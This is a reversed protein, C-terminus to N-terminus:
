PRHPTHNENNSAEAAQEQGAALGPRFRFRFCLLGVGLLLVAALAMWGGIPYAVGGVVLTPIGTQALQANGSM